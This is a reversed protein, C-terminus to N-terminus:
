GVLAVILQRPLPNGDTGSGKKREDGERFSQELECHEGRLTASVGIGDVRMTSPVWMVGDANQFSRLSIANLGPNVVTHTRHQGAIGKNPGSIIQGYITLQADDWSAGDRNTLAVDSATVEATASLRCEGFVHQNELSPKLGIVIRGVFGLVVLAGVVVVTAIMSKQFWGRSKARVTVAGANAGQLERGCHKCVLAADQIEEACFQCRKMTTRM